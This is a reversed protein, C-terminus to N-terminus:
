KEKVINYITKLDNPIIIKLASAERTKNEIYEKYQTRYSDLEETIKNYENRYEAIRETYDDEIATDVKHKYSNVIAQKERWEFQLNKFTSEIVSEEVTPTYRHIITNSGCETYEVSNFKKNLFEKRAKSFDGNPHIYKGYVSCFTQATLYRNRDKVSWESIVEEETLKAPAKPYEPLTINNERTWENIDMARLQKDINEKAKLAERLWAILSYASVISNLVGDIRQVEKTSFGKKSLTEKDSGILEITSDLFNTTSLYEKLSEVYEKAQNAIFNASTSTLGNEGFFVNEM